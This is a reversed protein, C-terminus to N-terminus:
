RIRGQKLQCLALKERTEDNKGRKREFHNLRYNRFRGPSGKKKATSQGVM